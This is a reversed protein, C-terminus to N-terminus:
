DHLRGITKIVEEIVVRNTKIKRNLVSLVSALIFVSLFVSILVFIFSKKV